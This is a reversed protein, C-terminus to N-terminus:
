KLFYNNKGENAFTTSCLCFHSRFFVYIKPFKATFFITEFCVKETEKLIKGCVKTKAYQDRKQVFIKVFINEPAVQIRVQALNRTDVTDDGPSPKQHWSYGRMGSALQIKM